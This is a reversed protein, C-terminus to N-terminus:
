SARGNPVLLERLPVVMVLRRGGLTLCPLQGQDLASRVSRPDIGLVRAAEATTITARDTELLDTLTNVRSANTMSNM